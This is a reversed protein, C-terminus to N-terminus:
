RRAPASLQLVAVGGQIQAALVGSMWIISLLAVIRLFQPGYVKGFMDWIPTGSAWLRASLLALVLMGAATALGYISGAMGHAVAMEGSGFLFGIGYSASVLLAAVQVARLGREEKM